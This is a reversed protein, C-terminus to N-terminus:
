ASTVANWCAVALRELEAESISREAAVVRLMPGIALDYLVPLPLDIMEEILGSQVESALADTETAMARAHATEAYPSADVQILFRSRDPDDRLWDYAGHWITLFRDRASATRDIKSTGAAGLERKLELYTALVLEDKSDYHVYATGTAVGAERAVTSMSAGHFGKHAVVRCLARRILAPRDIPVETATM